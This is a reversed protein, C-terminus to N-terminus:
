EVPFFHRGGQEANGSAAGGAEEAGVEDSGPRLGQGRAGAEGDGAARGVGEACRGAQAGLVLLLGKLLKGGPSDVLRSWGRGTPQRSLSVSSERAESGHRSGNQDVWGSVVVGIVAM